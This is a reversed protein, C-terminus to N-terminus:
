NVLNAAEFVFHGSQLRPMKCTVDSIEGVCVEYKAARNYDQSIQLALPKVSKQIKPAKMVLDSRTLPISTGVSHPFKNVGIRCAM